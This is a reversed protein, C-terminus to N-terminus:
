GSPHAVEERRVMAEGCHRPASESGKRLLLVETGCDECWFTVRTGAPPPEVHDLPVNRPAARLSRLMGIGVTAFALAFLVAIALRV